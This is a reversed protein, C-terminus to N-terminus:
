EDKELQEMHYESARVLFNGLSSWESLKMDFDALIEYGDLVTLRATGDERRLLRFDIGTDPGSWPIKQPDLGMLFFNNMPKM